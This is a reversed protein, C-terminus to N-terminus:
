LCMIVLTSSTSPWTLSASRSLKRTEPADTNGFLQPQARRPFSCSPLTHVRYYPVFGPQRCLCCCCYSVENSFVDYLGDCALLIFDDAQENLLHVTVEPEATVICRECILSPSALDSSATQDDSSCTLITLGDATSAAKARSLMGPTPEQPNPGAISHRGHPPRASLVKAPSPLPDPTSLAFMSANARRDQVQLGKRMKSVSAPSAEPLVGNGV